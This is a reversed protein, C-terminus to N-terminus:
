VMWAWEPCNTFRRLALISKIAPNKWRRRYGRPGPATMATGYNPFRQSINPLAPGRVGHVHHIPVPWSDRKHLKVTKCNQPQSGIRSSISM